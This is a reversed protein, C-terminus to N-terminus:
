KSTNISALPVLVSARTSAGAAGSLTPLSTTNLFNHEM